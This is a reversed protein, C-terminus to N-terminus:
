ELSRFMALYQPVIRRWDYAAVRERSVASFRARQAPDAALTGIAEALAPADGPPVLLANSGPAVLEAVGGVNTAVIPLGAAMAELLVRPFSEFRSALVFVDSAALARQITGPDPAIDLRVRDAIGARDALRRVIAAAGWDDGLLHLSVPGRAAALAVAALLVDLGKQALDLRGVSVLRCTESAPPRDAGAVLSLDIGTPIRVVRAEDVGLSLLFRRERDSQVVIRDATRLTGAAVVRHYLASAPLGRGPDAHPTIVLRRGPRRRALAGIWTPSYGFAHAHVIQAPSEIADFFMGPAAIGLGLPGPAFRYARHRRIGPAEGVRPIEQRAFPRTRLLDTTAVEVEVGAARLGAVLQELTAEVGGIAPPYRLSLELVRM